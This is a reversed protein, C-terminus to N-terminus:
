KMRFYSYFLCDSIGHWEPARELRGFIVLSLSMSILSVFRYLAGKISNCPKTYPRKAEQKEPWRAGHGSFLRLLMQCSHSANAAFCEIVVLYDTTILYSKVKWKGAVM